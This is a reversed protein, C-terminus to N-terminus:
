LCTYLCLFDPGLTVSLTKLNKRPHTM